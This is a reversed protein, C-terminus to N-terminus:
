YVVFYAFDLLFSMCPLLPVSLGLCCLRESCGPAASKYFSLADQLAEQEGFAASAATIVQDILM